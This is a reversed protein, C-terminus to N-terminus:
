GSPFTGPYLGGAGELLPEDPAVTTRGSPVGPLMLELVAVPVVELVELLAPAVVRGVVLLPVLPLLPAVVRGSLLLLPLVSEPLTVRGLVVVFVEPVELLPRVPVVVLVELLPRVPLLLPLFSEPLTLRGLLLVELEEPVVLLPRELLLELPRESLLEELLLEEDLEELLELVEVLEGLLPLYLIVQFKRFTGRDRPVKKQIKAWSFVFDIISCTM